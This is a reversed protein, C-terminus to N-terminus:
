PIKEGEIELEVPEVNAGSARLTGFYEGIAVSGSGARFRVAVVCDDSPTLIADTCTNLETLTFAPPALLTIQLPTTTDPGDNVLTFTADVTVTNQGFDYNVIPTAAFEWRMDLDLSATVANPVSVTQGDINTYNLNYSGVSTLTIACEVEETSVPTIACSVPGGGNNLTITSVELNTGTITLTSATNITIFEPTVSTITPAALYEFLGATTGSLGNANMVTISRVGASGSVPTLCTASTPSVYTSTVCNTAGVSVTLGPAFNTGTVTISTGGAIPGFAPAVFSVTPPAAVTLLGIGSGFLGNEGVVEVDYSGAIMGGAPTECQLETQSVIVVDDCPYTTPGDLIVTYGEFFSTGTITLLNSSPTTAITSPDVSSVVPNVTYFFSATSATTLGSGNTVSVQVEGLSDGEPIICELETESVVVVGTCPNAGIMVEPNIGRHDSFDTGIITLVAGGALPSYNAPLNTITPANRYEYDLASPVPASYVNNVSVPHEEQAGHDGTTCTIETASASTVACETGGITVIPNGNVTSFNTGTITLTTGGAVLGGIPSFDTITITELVILADDLAVITGDSNQLTFDYSGPTLGGPIQCTGTTSSLRATATCPVGNIQAEFDEGGASDNFGTGLFEITPASGENTVWTQGATLTLPALVTVANTLTHEQGSANQVFVHRLGTPMSPGTTCTIQGAIVETVPTCAVGAITVTPTTGEYFSANSVDIVVDDGGAAKLISPAIATIVPDDRYEFGNAPASSIAAITVIIDPEFGDANLTEPTRCTITTANSTVDTCAEGEFTVIPTELVSFNEGEITVLTDGARPGGIPSVSLIVPPSVFEIADELLVSVDGHVYEISYLGSAITDPADCTITTANVMDVNDCLVGSSFGGIYIEPEPDEPETFLFPLNTGTLTLTHPLGQIVTSPSVETLTPANIFSFEGSDPDTSVSISSNFLRVIYTGVGMGTFDPAFCSLTQTAHDFSDHACVQGGIRVVPINGEYDSLNAGEITVLTGGSLPGFTPSVSLVQPTEILEFAALTATMDGAVDGPLTVTIDTERPFFSTVTVQDPTCGIQTASAAFVTCDLGDFSVTNPLPDGAFTTVTSPIFNTGNIIIDHDAGDPHGINPSVSTITPPAIIAFKNSYRHEQNDQTFVDFWYLGATLGAEPFRCHIENPTAFTDVSQIQCTEDYSFDPKFLYINLNALDFEVFNDGYLILDLPGSESVKRFNLSLDTIDFEGIALFPQDGELLEIVQGGATELRVSKWGPASTIEPTICHVITSSPSGTLPCDEGDITIQVPGDHASFNTGTIRITQGGTATGYNLMWSRTLNKIESITPPNVYQFVDTLTATGAFNTVQVSVIASSARPPLTCEIFINTNGPVIPCPEDGVLVSTTGDTTFNTGHIELIGGGALPGATPSISTLTPTGVYRLTGGPASIASSLSNQVTAQYLGPTRPPALCTLSTPTIVTVSTCAGGGITVNPPSLTSFNSGSLTLTQGGGTTIVTPSISTVTPQGLSEFVIEQTSVGGESQAQIRYVGPDVIGPLECTLNNEDIINVDFCSYTTAPNTTDVLEVETEMGFTSFRTGTVSIIIPSGGDNPLRGGPTVSAVTPLGLFTIVASPASSLGAASTVIATDFGPETRSPVTCEIETTSSSTVPCDRGGVAVTPDGIASFAGTIILTWGADLDSFNQSITTIVPDVEYVFDDAADGSLGAFAPNTATVIYPATADAEAPTLCTIETTTIEGVTTCVEGGTDGITIVTPNGPYPTFNTGTVTLITGGLSSGSPPDYSTISPTGIVYLNMPLSFNDTTNSVRVPYVGASLVPLTCQVETVSIFDDLTCDDDGIKITWGPDDLFDTGNIILIEDETDGEEYALVSLSTLTPALLYEFPDSQNSTHGTANTVTFNLAVGADGGSIECLIETGAPNVTDIVCEEDHGVGQLRVVPAGGFESFDTGVITIMTEGNQPAFGPSISTIAPENIYLYIPDVDPVEPFAIYEGPELGPTRVLIQFVDQTTGPPLAVAPSECTLEEDSIVTVNACDQTDNEFYVETLGDLFNTGTIKVLTGGPGGAAFEDTGDLRVIGTITPAEVVVFASDLLLPAEYSNEIRIDYVGTSLAPTSCTVETPTNTSLTCPITGNISVVPANNPELVNLAPATTFHSANLTLTLPLGQPYTTNTLSVAGLAARYEYALTNSSLGGPNTVVVARLVGGAPAGIFNPVQCRLQTPSDVAIVPCEFGGISVTSTEGNELSQFNTGTITLVVNGGIPIGGRPSLSSITPGSIVQYANELTSTSVDHFVSIDYFGPSLTSPPRCQISTSSITSIIPCPVRDAGIFVKTKNLFERGTLTLVPPNSNSGFTPSLSILVPPEDLIPAGKGGSSTSELNSKVCGLLVLTILWPGLLVKLSKHIFPTHLRLV